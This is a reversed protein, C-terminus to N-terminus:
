REGGARVRRYFQGRVSRKGNVFLDFDLGALSLRFSNPNQVELNFLFTASPTGVGPPNLRVLGSNEALLKFKPAKVFNGASPACANLLFVLLLLATIQMTSRKM